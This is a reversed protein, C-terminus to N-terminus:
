LKGRNISLAANEDKYRAILFVDGLKDYEILRYKETVQTGSKDKLIFEREAVESKILKQAHISIFLFSSMLMLLIVRSM